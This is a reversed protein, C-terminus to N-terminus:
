DFDVMLKIYDKKKESLCKEMYAGCADFSIHRTILPTLDLGAQMASIVDEYDHFVVTLVSGEKMTLKDLDFTSYLKEYFAVVILKGFIALSDIAEDLVSANGSCEIINDVGKGDTERMVFDKLSEQKPNCAADAGLNKAIDLKWPTRGSILVKKAGYHKALAAAAIGIPGVGIILVTTEGPVINCKKVGLMGVAAPEILAALDDSFSEPIKILAREPFMGYEAYSGPWTNVTGVSRMNLCLDDRGAKCNECKGCSVYGKSIVRDGLKFNKVDPGMEVVEGVFEHGFRVPYPTSGDKIFGATGELIAMDTACIGNRLVKVVIQDAGAVPKPYEETYVARGPAAAVLTKM